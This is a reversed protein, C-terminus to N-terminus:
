FHIAQELSLSVVTNLLFRLSRVTIVERLLSSIIFSLFYLIQGSTVKYQSSTSFGLVFRKNVRQYISIVLVNDFVGSTCKTSRKNHVLEEFFVSRMQAIKRNPSHMQCMLLQHIIKQSFRTICWGHVKSKYVITGM